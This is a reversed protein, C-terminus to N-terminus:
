RPRMPQLKKYTFSRLAWELPGFRAYKMWVVAVLSLGLWIGVALLVGALPGTKGFQGFGYGYAITSAVVSEMLYVTLSMRGSTQLARALWGGKGITLSLAALYSAALAPAAAFGVAFGLTGWRGGPVTMSAGIAAGVVGVLAYRRLVTKAQDIHRTPHSLLDSRGLAIGVLFFSFVAPGQVFALIALTALWYGSQVAVVEGFSGSTFTSIVGDAVTPDAVGEILELAGIVLWVVAAIVYVVAAKRLIKSTAVSRYRFALAGVVAYIVLIDGPFFVIGHIVGLIGIGLMRRRYRKALAVDDKARSLQLSLGYGFLVAFLPYVKTQGFAAVLWRVVQDTTSTFQSWGLDSVQVIFEINVLLIGLLAFGRLADVFHHRQAGTTPGVSTVTQPKPTSTRM